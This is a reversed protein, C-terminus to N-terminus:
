ARAAATQASAAETCAFLRLQAKDAAALAHAGAVQALLESRPVAVAAPLAPETGTV